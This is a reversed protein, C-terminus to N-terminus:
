VQYVTPAHLAADHAAGRGGFDFTMTVLDRPGDSLDLALLGMFLLVPLYTAWAM